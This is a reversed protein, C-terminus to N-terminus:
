WAIVTSYLLTHVYVCLGVNLLLDKLDLSYCVCM